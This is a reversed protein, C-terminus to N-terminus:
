EETKAKRTRRPAKPKPEQVVHESALTGYKTSNIAELREATVEFVDGEHRLEGTEGDRFDSLCIALM